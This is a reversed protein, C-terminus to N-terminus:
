RREGGARRASAARPRVVLQSPNGIRVGATARGRRLAQLQRRGGRTRRLAAWARAPTVEGLLHTTAPRRVRSARSSRAARTTRRALCRLARRFRTAGIQALRRNVDACRTRGARRAAGHATVARDAFGAISSLYTNRGAESLSGHLWVQDPQSQDGAQLEVAQTSPRVGLFRQVQDLPILADDAQRLLM